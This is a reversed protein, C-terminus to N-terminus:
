HHTTVLRLLAPVLDCRLHLQKLVEIIDSTEPLQDPGHHAAVIRANITPLDESRWLARWLKSAFEDQQVLQYFNRDMMLGVFFAYFDFSNPFLPVGMYRLNLFLAATEETLVYYTIDELTEIRLNSVHITKKAYADSLASHAYVRTLGAETTTTLGASTFDFLKLTFPSTVTMGKYFYSCPQRSFMLSGPGPKGFTFDYPGLATFFALLQLLIGRVLEPTLTLSNYSGLDPREALYYGDDGCIFATQLRVVHRELKEPSLIRELLFSILAGNSFEDLALYRKAATDKLAPECSTYSCRTLLKRVVTYPLDKAKIFPTVRPFETVMLYSGAERGCEVLFPTSTTEPGLTTLRGVNRCQPCRFSSRLEGKGVRCHCGRDVSLITWLGRQLQNPEQIFLDVVRHREQRFRDLMADVHKTVECSDIRKYTSLAM